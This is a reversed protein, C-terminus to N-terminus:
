NIIIVNNSGEEWYEIADATFMLLLQDGIFNLNITYCTGQEPVRGLSFDPIVKTVRVGDPYSYEVTITKRMGLYPVASTAGEARADFKPLLLLVTGQENDPTSGVVRASNPAFQEGGDQGIFRFTGSFTEDGVSMVPDAPSFDIEATRYFDGSLTLSHITVTNAQPDDRDVANYNNIQLRLGTLLHRFELQVTGQSSSHDFCAAIMADASADPDLARAADGGADYPMTYTLKPVGRTLADAPSVAFGGGQGVAGYPHYAVFSYLFRGTEVGGTDDDAYWRRPRNFTAGDSSYVCRAGDFFVPECYMVDAHSLSKKTLWDSNGGRYDPVDENLQYPICYGLVGFVSRPALSNMLEARTRSEELSVRPTGFSIVDGGYGGSPMPDDAASCAALLLAAFLSSLYKCMDSYRFFLPKTM